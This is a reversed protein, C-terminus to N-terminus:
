IPYDSYLSYPLVWSYEFTWDWAEKCFAQIKHYGAMLVLKSRDLTTIQEFSVEEMGWTHSLIAYPPVDKGFEEL